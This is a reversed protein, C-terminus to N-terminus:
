VAGLWIVLLLVWFVVTARRHGLSAIELVLSSLVALILGLTLILAVASPALYYGETM